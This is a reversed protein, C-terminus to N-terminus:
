NWIYTRTMIHKFADRGDKTYMYMYNGAYNPASELDSLVKAKIAQEFAEQPNKTMTM